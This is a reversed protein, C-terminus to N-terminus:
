CRGSAGRRPRACLCGGVMSRVPSAQAASRATDSAEAEGLYQRAARLSRAGGSRGPARDAQTSRTTYRSRPRPSLHSRGRVDGQAPENTHAREGTRARPMAAVPADAGARPTGLVRHPRVSHTLDDPQRVAPRPEPRTRDARALGHPRLEEKVERRWEGIEGRLPDSASEVGHRPRGRARACQAAAAERRVRGRQLDHDRTLPWRNRGLPPWRFEGVAAM